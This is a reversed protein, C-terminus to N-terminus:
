TWLDVTKQAKKPRNKNYKQLLFGVLILPKDGLFGQYKWPKKPQNQPKKAVHYIAPEFSKPGIGTCLASSCLGLKAILSGPLRLKFSGIM